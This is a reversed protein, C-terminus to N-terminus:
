FQLANKKKSLLVIFHPDNLASRFQFSLAQFPGLSNAQASFLVILYFISLISLTKKTQFINDLTFVNWVAIQCCFIANTWGLASTQFSECRKFPGDANQM